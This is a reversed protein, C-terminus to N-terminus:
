PVFASFEESECPAGGEEVGPEAEGGRLAFSEYEEARDDSLQLLLQALEVVAACDIEVESRVEAVGCCGTAEIDDDAVWGPDPGVVEVGCCPLVETGAECFDGAVGGAIRREADLRVDRDWECLAAEFECARASDERKQEGGFEPAGHGGACESVVQELVGCWEVEAIVGGVGTAEGGRDIGRCDGESARWWGVSICQHVRTLNLALRRDCAIAAPVEGDGGFVQWGVGGGACWPADDGVGDADRGVGDCM